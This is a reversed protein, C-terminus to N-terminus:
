EMLPDRVPPVSKPDERSVREIQQALVEAMEDEPLVRAKARQYAQVAEERANRQCLINGLELPIFYTESDEAEAQRLLREAKAPDPKEAYFADLAYFLVRAAHHGRFVFTGRFILLNGFRAVPTSERLVKYDFYPSPVIDAAAVAVTGTFSDSNDSSPNAKWVDQMSNLGLWRNQEDDFSYLVYPIEGTPEVNKHYYSAWEKTRQGLGVSENNFYKSGNAPGGVIENFYEWPRVVPLTSALAAVTAIAVCGLQVRSKAQLAHAVAVGALVAFAPFVPLSHRVGAYSSNSTALVFFFLLAYGLLILLPTQVAYQIKGACLLVLGLVAIAMLGLPIKVLVTVPFFYFPVHLYSKGWFFVPYGRGEVGARVTDALGWLYSRPLLHFQNAVSIAERSIPRRLDDIKSNLPRNFTDIGAPSENFRFRYLGWLVMWALALVAAVRLLRAFRGPSTPKAKVVAMVVGLVMVAIVIVPASHKASFALGLALGAFMANRWQWSVFAAYGLLLATAGALAVPLDTMVIPLHATVTPDMMLFALAALAVVEDFVKWIAIALALLLLGNLVFMATRARRQVFDADNKLFVIDSTFHREDIKDSVPRLPAMKFVSPPFFAAVWLKVLPPHEPNLRYDGLRLYSVGAAIHYPEDLTFGDYRTAIASRTVGALILGVMAAVVWATRRISANGVAPSSSESAQSMTTRFFDQIKCVPGLQPPTHCGSLKAQGGPYTLKRPHCPSPSSHGGLGGSVVLRRM